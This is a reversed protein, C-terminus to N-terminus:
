FLSSVVKNKRRTYIQSSFAAYYNITAITGNLYNTGDSGIRAQTVTPITATADTVAAGSDKRARCDNPAWWGTLSYATNAAITGADLQAQPAGGDVIYLEPNTTNGRLAIIENATGDDYQVLPRIGSVTSPTAQVQAGGQASNWFSTFNSGTIVAVDANRTLSSTTTPIYSTAFLGAELQAGWVLTQSATTQAGASGPYVLVTINTPASLTAVIACRYWGNGVAQITPTAASVATGSVSAVSASGAGSLTFDARVLNSTSPEGSLLLRCATDTSAAKCYVSYAYTGATANATRQFVAAFATASNIALLAATQTGDPAVASNVTTDLAASTEYWANSTVVTGISSFASRLLLNARQEEILLGKAALTVPNYDFRPANIAATAILGASNTYTATTSRTFTVRPDLTNGGNIFDLTISPNMM